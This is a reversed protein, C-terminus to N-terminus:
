VLASLDEATLEGCGIDSQDAPDWDYIRMCSYDVRIKTKTFKGHSRNKLNYLIAESRKDLEDDKYTTTICDSDKEVGNAYSLHYNHYEGEEDTGKKKAVAEQGARNIQYLLLVPIGAGSDFHLAMMKLERVIENLEVTRDKYSHAPKILEGHDLIIMGVDMSKHEIEAYTRIDPVTVHRDPSWIKIRCYDPNTHMDNMAEQYFAEEEPSLEGVRIKNRDLPNLGKQAFRAHSTHMAFIQQEIDTAPMEMSVYLVNGRYKTASNYAWNTAFATKLHGPAAAHTWLEGPKLGHCVNDISKIGSLKGYASVPNAKVQCYHEYEKAADEKVDAKTRGNREPPLIEYVKRNFYQIADVTGKIITTAQGKKFTKGKTSIEEIETLLARFRNQTQTEVLEKLLFTFNTSHRVDAVAKIDDLKETVTIEARREFVTKITVSSPPELNDQAYEKMFEFIKREDPNIWELSSQVLALYNSNLMERSIKGDGFDIISRLLRKPM